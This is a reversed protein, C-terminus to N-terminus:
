RSIQLLTDRHMAAPDGSCKFNDLDAPAIPRPPDDRRHATQAARTNISAM